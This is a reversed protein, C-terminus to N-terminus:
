WARLQYPGNYSALANLYIAANAYGNTNNIRLEDIDSTFAGVTNANASQFGAGTVNIQGTFGSWNGSLPYRVYNAVLNLTGSGTLSSNLGAGAGTAPNGRGPLQLTGVQGAPVVLPNYFNNFATTYAPTAWGGTYNCRPM